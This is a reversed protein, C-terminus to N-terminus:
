DKQVLLWLLLYPVAGLVLATAGLVSRAGFRGIGEADEPVARCDIEASM